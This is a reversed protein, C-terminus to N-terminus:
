GLFAHSRLGAHPPLELAAAALGVDTRIRAVLEPLGGFRLEPRVYGSLVVALRRGYFDGAFRHLLHAEITVAAGAADVTPRRGVNVVAKHV